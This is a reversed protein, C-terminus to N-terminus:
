SRYKKFSLPLEGITCTMTTGDLKINTVALTLDRVQLLLAKDTLLWTGAVFVGLGSEGYLYLRAEGDEKFYVVFDGTAIIEKVIKLTEINEPTLTGDQQMQAVLMAELQALVQPDKQYEWAGLLGSAPEDKAKDDGCSTFAWCCIMAVVLMAWGWLINKRKMELTVENQIKESHLIIVKLEGRGLFFVWFVGM